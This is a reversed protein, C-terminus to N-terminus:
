LNRLTVPLEKTVLAADLKQFVPVLEPIWIGTEAFFATHCQMFSGGNLQSILAEVAPTDKTAQFEELSMKRVRKGELM